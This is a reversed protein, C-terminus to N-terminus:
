HGDAGRARRVRMGLSIAAHNAEADIQDIAQANESFFVTRRESLLRSTLTIESGFCRILVRAGAKETARARGRELRVMLPNVESAIKTMEAAVSSAPFLTAAACATARQNLAQVRSSAISADTINEWEGALAQTPAAALVTLPAGAQRQM